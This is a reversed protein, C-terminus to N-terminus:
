TWYEAKLMSILAKCLKLYNITYSLHENWFCCTLLDQYQATSVVPYLKTYHKTQDFSVKCFCSIDCHFCFLSHSKECSYCMANAPAKTLLM